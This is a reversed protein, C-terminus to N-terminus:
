DLIKKLEENLMNVPKLKFSNISRLQSRRVSVSGLKKREETKKKVFEKRSSEIPSILLESSVFKKENRRNPMESYTETRKFGYKKNSVVKSFSRRQVVGTFKIVRKEGGTKMRLFQKKRLDFKRKKGENDMKMNFFFEMEKTTEKKIANINNISLRTTSKKPDHIKKLMNLIDKSKGYRSSKSMSKYNKDISELIRQAFIKRNSLERSLVSSISSNNHRIRLSKSHKKLGRKKRKKRSKKELKGKFVVFNKEECMQSFENKLKELKDLFVTQNIFIEMDKVKKLRALFSDLNNIIVETAKREHLDKLLIYVTGDPFTVKQLVSNDSHKNIAKEYEKMIRETEKFHDIKDEKIMKLFIEKVFKNSISNDRILRYSGPLGKSELIVSMKLKSKVKSNFKLPKNRRQFVSLAINTIEKKLGIPHFNYLQLMSIKDLHKEKEKTSKMLIETRKFDRTSSEILEQAKKMIPNPKEKEEEEEEVEQFKKVHKYLKNIKNKKKKRRKKLKEEARRKKLLWM